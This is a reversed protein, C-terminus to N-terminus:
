VMVLLRLSFCSTSLWVTVAQSSGRMGVIEPIRRRPYVGSAKRLKQAAVGTARLLPMVSKPRKSDLTRSSRSEVAVRAIHTNCGNFTVIDLQSASVVCVKVTAFCGLSSVM